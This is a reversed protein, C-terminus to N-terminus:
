TRRYIVWDAPELKINEGRLNDATFKWQSTMNSLKIAQLLFRSKLCSRGDISFRTKRDGDGDSSTTFGKTAKTKVTQPGILWCILLAVECLRPLSRRIMVNRSTVWFLASIMDTSIQNFINQQELSFDDSKLRIISIRREECTAGGRHLIKESICNSAQIILLPPMTLFNARWLFLDWKIYLVHLIIVHLTILMSSPRTIVDWM